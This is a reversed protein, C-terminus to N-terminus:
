VLKERCRPCRQVKQQTDTQFKRAPLHYERDSLIKLLEDRKEFLEKLLQRQEAYIAEIKAENEQYELLEDRGAYTSM